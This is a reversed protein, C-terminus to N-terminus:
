WVTEKTTVRFKNGSGEWKKDSDGEMETKNKSATKEVKQAHSGKRKGRIECKKLRTV